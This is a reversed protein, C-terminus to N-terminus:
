PSSAGTNSNSRRFSSDYERRRAFSSNQLAGAQDPGAAAAQGSAAGVVTADVNGREKMEILQALRSKKPTNNVGTTSPSIPTRAPSGFTGATSPVHAEQLKEAPSAPLELLLSMEHGVWRVIYEGNRKRNLDGQLRRAAAYHHSHGMNQGNKRSIGDGDRLKKELNALRQHCNLQGLSHKFWEYLTLAKTFCNHAGRLNGKRTHIMGIASLSAAQGIKDGVAKYLILALGFQAKAEDFKTETTLLVGMLKRTNAECLTNKHYKAIHLSKDAANWAGRHRGSLFLAHAFFCAVDVVYSAIRDRMTPGGCDVKLGGDSALTNGAGAAADSSWEEIMKIHLDLCMWMNSEHMDLILYSASSRAALTCIHQFIWYSVKWFHRACNYLFLDRDASCISELAENKAGDGDYMGLLSRAYSTIFPFTSYYVCVNMVEAQSGLQEVHEAVRSARGSRTLTNLMSREGSVSSYGRSGASADGEGEGKAGGGSIYEGYSKLAALLSQDYTETTRTSRGARRTGSAGSGGSTSTNRKPLGRNALAFGPIRNRQILSFRLLTEVLMEWKNGWLSKFDAPMAGAPLLGLLAFFRVADQDHNMKVQELSVTLSTVLTNVASRDHAPLGVVQLESVGRSLVARTLESLSRDQLLPACLSIAQPHGDLFAMLPHSSLAELVSVARSKGSAMSTNIDGIESLLLARPAKKLFLDAAHYHSLRNLSVVKEDFGAVGGGMAQRATMLFSLNPTNQLLHLLFERVASPQANIPDEMNDMVLLLKMDALVQHLPMEKERGGDPFMASKIASEMGELSQVGRLRIFAVGDPFVNREAFFHALKISLTSKGIGPPGRLTVFRRSNVLEALMHLEQERGVFSESVAPLTKVFRNSPSVDMWKGVSIDSFVFHMTSSNCTCDKAVLSIEVPRPMETDTFLPCTDAHLHSSELLVFKDGENNPVRLEASVRVRAIEFAQHVTKGSLVAHYFSHAFMSSSEDLVKTDCRVCVVHSVGAQVFVEGMERSDCSSVFVLKLTSGTSRIDNSSTRSLTSSISRASSPPAPPMKHESDDDALLDSRLLGTTGSDESPVNGGNLILRLTAGDILHAMGCAQTDEFILFNKKGALQGGHGSFHLVTVGRDLVKRLSDVTAVARMTHIARQCEHFIKSLQMQEQVINLQPVAKLRRQGGSGDGHQPMVFPNSYLTALDVWTNHVGYVSSTETITTCDSLTDSKDEQDDTTAMAGGVNDLVSRAIRENAEACLQSNTVSSTSLEKSLAPLEGEPPMDMRTAGVDNQRLLLDRARRQLTALLELKAEDSDATPEQAALRVFDWLQAHTAARGHDDAVSSNSSSGGGALLEANSLAGPKTEEDDVHNAMGM